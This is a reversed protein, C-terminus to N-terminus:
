RSVTWLGEEFQLLSWPFLGLDRVRFPLVKSPLDFVRGFLCQWTCKVKVIVVGGM